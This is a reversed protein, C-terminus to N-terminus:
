LLRESCGAAYSVLAMELVAEFQQTPIDPVM